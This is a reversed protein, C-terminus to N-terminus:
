DSDVSVSRESVDVTEGNNTMGSTQTLVMKCDKSTTLTMIVPTIFNQVTNVCANSACHPQDSIRIPQGYPM